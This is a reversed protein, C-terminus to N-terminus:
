KGCNLKRQLKAAGGAPVVVTDETPECKEKTLRVRREGAETWDKTNTPDDWKNKDVEITAGSPDSTVELEGFSGSLQIFTNMDLPGSPTSARYSTWSLALIRAVDSDSYKRYKDRVKPYVSNITKADSALQDQSTDRWHLFICERQGTLFKVRQSDDQFGSSSASAMKCDKSYAREYLQTKRADRALAGSPLLLATPLTLVFYCLYFHTRRM